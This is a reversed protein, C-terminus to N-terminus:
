AAISGRTRCVHAGVRRGDAREGCGARPPRERTDDQRAEDAVPGGDHADRQDRREPEPRDEGIPQARAVRDVDVDAVFERPRQRAAVEEAGVLEPAVHQAPEQVRPADREAHAERRHRDRDQDAGRDARDRSVPAPEDVHQQEPEGVRHERERRDEHEQRERGEHAGRERGHRHHDTHRRPHVDRAHHPALDQREALALEHEPGAREASGRRPDECAM